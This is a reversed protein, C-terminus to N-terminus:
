GNKDFYLSSLNRYFGVFIKHILSSIIAWEWWDIDVILLVWVVLGVGGLFVLPGGVYVFTYCFGVLPKQPGQLLSVRCIVWDWWVQRVVLKAGLVLLLVWVM